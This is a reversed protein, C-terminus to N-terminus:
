KNNSKTKRGSGKQDATRASSSKKEFVDDNLVKLIKALAANENQAKEILLRLEEEAKTYNNEEDLAM